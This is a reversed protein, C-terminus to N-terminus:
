INYKCGNQKYKSFWDIEASILNDFKNFLIKKGWDLM